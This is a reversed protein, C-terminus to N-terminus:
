NITKNNCYNSDETPMTTLKDGKYNIEIDDLKNNASPVSLNNKDNTTLIPITITYLYKTQAIDKNTCIYIMNHHYANKVEWKKTNNQTDKYTIYYKNSEISISLVSSTNDDFGFTISTNNTNTLTTLAKHLIDEEVTNIIELRNQQNDIAFASNTIENNINILLRYMFVMVVSILAISIILEILTVGKKNLKKM